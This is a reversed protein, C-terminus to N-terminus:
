EQIAKILKLITSVHLGYHLNNFCIADQLSTITFNYSTPYEKYTKFIDNNLDQQLDEFQNKFQNIIAKCDQESVNAIPQTGKRYKEVFAQSLGLDNDSLGYILLKQTVTLHAVNWIVNNSFGQPIKNLKETSLGEVLAVVNQISTQLLKLESKM